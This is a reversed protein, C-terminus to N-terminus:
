ASRRRPQETEPRASSTLSTVVRLLEDIRAPKALYCDIDARDYRKVDAPMVHATLAVSAIGYRAKLEELLALGDGDPLGVDSVIVDLRGVSLDTAV